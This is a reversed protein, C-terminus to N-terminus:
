AESSFLSSALELPRNPATPPRSRLKFNINYDHSAQAQLLRPRTSWRKTGHHLRDYTKWFTRCASPPHLRLHPGWFAGWLAFQILRSLLRPCYSRTYFLVLFPAPHPCVCLLIGRFLIFWPLALKTLYFLADRRIHHVLTHIHRISYFFNGGIRSVM